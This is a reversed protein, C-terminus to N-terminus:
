PNPSYTMGLSATDGTIVLEMRATQRASTNRLLAMEGAAFRAAVPGGPEVTGRVVPGAGPRKGLVMVAVRGSNRGRVAFGGPQGGGLEFTRGPEIQLSSTIEGAGGGAAAAAALALGLVLCRASRSTPM